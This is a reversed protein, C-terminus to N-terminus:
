HMKQMKQQAQFAVKHSSYYKGAPTTSLIVGTPAATPVTTIEIFAGDGALDPDVEVTVTGSTEVITIDCEHTGDIAPADPACM